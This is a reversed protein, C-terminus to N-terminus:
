GSPEALEQEATVGDILHAAARVLLPELAVDGRRILALLEDRMRPEWFKQLHTGIETAATDEDLHAFQRVIDHGKRIVPSSHRAAGTM